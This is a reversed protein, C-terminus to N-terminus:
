RVNEVVPGQPKLVNLFDSRTSALYEKYEWKYKEDAADYLEQFIEHAEKTRGLMILDMAKSAKISKYHKDDIDMSALKKDYLVLASEYYGKASASDGRIEFVMGVLYQITGDNPNLRIIQKGTALADKYKTLHCQFGFKNFYAILYNSDIQLAKNLLGVAKEYLVSDNYMPCWVTDSASPITLPGSNGHKAIKSITSTDGKNSIMPPDVTLAIASDNLKIAQPNYKHKHRSCATLSQILYLAFFLFTLKKM